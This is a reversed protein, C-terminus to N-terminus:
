EQVARRQREVLYFGPAPASATAPCVGVALTHPGPTLRLPVLAGQGLVADGGAPVFLLRRGDLWLTAAGRVALEYRIETTAAVEMHRAFGRCAPPGLRAGDVFGEVARVRPAEARPYAAWTTRWADGAPPMEPASPAVRWDLVFAQNADPLVEYLLTYGGHGRRLRPDAQLRAGLLAPQHFRSFAIFDSDLEEVLARPVDAERGEFIARESRYAAPYRVAMFVPDLVNLYAAQPAWFLYLHASGWEAAVKAGAPVARGFDAWEVERDIPGRAAALDRVLAAARPVGALLALVIALALPLHGRGPLAVRRGITGHRCRLHALLALLAFPLAYTVFRLMLLYLLGFIAATVLLVDAMPQAAPDEDRRRDASASRQSRALALLALWFGLNHLLLEDSKQPRIERGVDLAAKQAFFDFSQVKWVVLNHPFHPHVILGILVGLLPYLLLPWAWRRRMWGQQLFWLGALGLLAHFATYSLTFLLAIVGLLRYRQRGAAWAAALFLVLALLEPRLRIARFLFQLSGGYVLLPALLGWRGAVSQGLAGLGAAILANLLTLAWRGGESGPLSSALPALLLHFLLEKDGFGEYMLSLRAWPLADIVGQQGYLRGIALHYYSDTDYLVPLRHFLVGFVVVALLFILVPGSWARALRTSM